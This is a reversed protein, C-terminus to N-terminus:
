SELEGVLNQVMDVTIDRLCRYHNYRCTREYCPSCDCGARAIRCRAGLPRTWAPTSSGFIGIVPTGLFGALHMLGSDNSIVMSAAAIIGPLDALGTKGALNVVHPDNRHEFGDIVRADKADGLLIVKRERYKNILADFGQWQKAPGYNAGPCLVMAGRYRDDVAVAPGNWSEPPLNNTELLLSYHSTIHESRVLSTKKVISNLLLSRGNRDIGRRRGIGACFAFLAASFSPPLVYITKFGRRHAERVSAFYDSLSGRRYIIMPLDVLKEAIAALQEPVILTLNGGSAVARRRAVSLALLFDGLWNPM